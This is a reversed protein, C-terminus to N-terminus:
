GIHTAGDNWARSTEDTVLHVSVLLVQCVTGGLHGSVQCSRWLAQAKEIGVAARLAQIQPASIPKTLIDDLMNQTTVYTPQIADKRHLWWYILRMNVHKAQISSAENDVQKIAAQSDMNM